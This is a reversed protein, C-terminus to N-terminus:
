RGRMRDLAGPAVSALFAEEIRDHATDLWGAVEEPGLGFGTPSVFELDLTIYQFLESAIMEIGTQHLLLGEPEEYLLEYRQFFDTLTEGLKSPVPPDLTIFRGIDVEGQFPLPIQNIYRLSVQDLTTPSASELYKGLTGNILRSLSGWGPYPYLRNIFMEYPSLNIAATGDENSLRLRDVVGGVSAPGEAERAWLAREEGQRVQERRPFDQRIHEYLIGPIAWDWAGSTDFRFECVVEALPPNALTGTL